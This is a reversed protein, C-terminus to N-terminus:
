VITILYYELNWNIQGSKVDFDCDVLFANGIETTLYKLVFDTNFYDTYYTRINQSAIPKGILSNFVLNSNISHLDIYRALDFPRFNRLGLGNIFLYPWSMGSNQVTNDIGSGDIRILNAVGLVPVDLSEAILFGSQSDTNNVVNEFDTVIDINIDSKTGLPNDYVVRLPLFNTNTASQTSFTEVNVREIDYYEVSKAGINYDYIAINSFDFKETSNAIADVYTFMIQTGDLYWYINFLKEILELVKKISLTNTGYEKPLGDLNITSNDTITLAFGTNLVLENPVTYSSLEFSLFLVMADLITKITASNATLYIPFTIVAPIDVRLFINENNFNVRQVGSYYLQARIATYFHKVQTGSITETYSYTFFSWDQTNEPTILSGDPNYAAKYTINTYSAPDVITPINYFIEHPNTCNLFIRNAPETISIPHYEFEWVNLIPTYADIITFKTLTITNREFDQRERIMVDGTGFEDFIQTDNNYVEIKFPVKYSNSSILNSISDFDNGFFTCKLSVFKRYILKNIDNKVQLSGSYSPTTLQYGSGFDLYIKILEM